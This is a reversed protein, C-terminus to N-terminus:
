RATSSASRAISLARLGVFFLAVGGAVVVLGSLHLVHLERLSWGRQEAAVEALVASIVLLLGGAQWRLYSGRRRLGSLDLLLLAAVMAWAAGLLILAYVTGM